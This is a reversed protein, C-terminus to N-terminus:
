VSVVRKVKKSCDDLGGLWTLSMQYFNSTTKDTLEGFTYWFAIEQGTEVSLPNGTIEGNNGLSLRSALTKSGRKVLDSEGM